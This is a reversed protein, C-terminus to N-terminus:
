PSAPSHTTPAAPFIREREREIENKWRASVVISRSLSLSHIHLSRIITCKPYVSRHARTHTHTDKYLQTFIIINKASLAISFSLSHHCVLSIKSFNRCIAEGEWIFLLPVIFFIGFIACVSVSRCLLALLVCALCFCVLVSAEWLTCANTKNVRRHGYPLGKARTHTHTCTHTLTGLHDYAFVCVCTRRVNTTCPCLIYSWRKQSPNPAIFFNALDCLADWSNNWFCCASLSLSLSSFIKGSLFRFRTCKWFEMTSKRKM